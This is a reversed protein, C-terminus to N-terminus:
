EGGIGKDIKEINKKSVDAVRWFWGKPDWCLAYPYEDIVLKFKSKAEEAKAQRMYAEGIIYHCTAVDNVIAYDDERGAGPFARMAKSIRRADSEYIELCRKTYVFVGEYDKAALCEWASVTLNWNSLDSFDYKNVGVKAPGKNVPANRSSTEEIKAPAQPNIEEASCSSASILAMSVFVVKLIKTMM